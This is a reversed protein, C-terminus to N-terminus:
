RSNDTARMASKRIVSLGSVDGSVDRVAGSAVVITIARTGLVFSFNCRDEGSQINKM